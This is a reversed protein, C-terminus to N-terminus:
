RSRAQGAQRGVAAVLVAAGLLSGALVLLGATHEGTTDKLYGMLAPGVYGGTNGISNVLAIAGAGAAGTLLATPLTWFVPLAAYIGAAGATLAAFALLPRDALYASAALGVCGALAPWAIHRLREGTADSHRGWAYMAVAAIVSPFATLLGVQPLTLGGFDAVIQPLWFGLGYLGIVLGFYVIGLIWVRTDLLAARVSVPRQVAAQEADLTRRLWAKEDDALWGAREPRDDLRYLVILGLLVAPVGELIFMWQWGQLGFGEIGLLATSLPAGIVGSVPIAIMFAGTIRARVAAPFWYTLYLIMGPFFGAEAVGLLFRLVYFSIPGTTAAMAASVLGWSIMIRAIWRRAGFRHLMLNSPVEFLVYGLFFIGAGFGYVRASLGLDANMTLAAFGVNVRDLFAVFYLLGMFPLLRWALKRVVREGLEGAESM